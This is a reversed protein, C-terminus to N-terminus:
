RCGYFRGHWGGGIAGEAIGDQPLLLHRAGVVAMRALQARVDDAVLITRLHHQRELEAAPRTRMQRGAAFPPTELQTLNVIRFRTVADPVGSWGMLVVLATDIHDVEVHIDM